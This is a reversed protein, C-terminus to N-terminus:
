VEVVGVVGVVDVMGVVEETLDKTLNLACIRIRNSRSWSWELLLWSGM